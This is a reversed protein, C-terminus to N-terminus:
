HYLVIPFCPLLDKFLSTLQMITVQSNIFCLSINRYVYMNYFFKFCCVITSMNAFSSNRSIGDFRLITRRAASGLLVISIRNVKSSRDVLPEGPKAQRPVAPAPTPNPSLETWSPYEIDGTYIFLM